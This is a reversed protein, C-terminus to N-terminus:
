RASRGGGGGGAGGAAPAAGRTAADDLPLEFRKAAEVGVRVELRDSGFEKSCPMERSSLALPIGGGAPVMSALTSIAWSMHCVDPGLPCCVSPRLIRSPVACRHKPRGRRWLSPTM